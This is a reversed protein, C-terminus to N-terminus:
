NGIVEFSLLMRFPYGLSRPPPYANPFDRFLERYSITRAAKSKRLRRGVSCPRPEPFGGTWTGVDKNRVSSEGGLCTKSTFWVSWTEENSGLM